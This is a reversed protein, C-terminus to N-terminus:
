PHEIAHSPRRALEIASRNPDIIGAEVTDNTIQVTPRKSTNNIEMFLFYMLGIAGGAMANTLHASNKLDYKLAPGVKSIAGLLTFLIVFLSQRGVAGGTLKNWVDARTVDGVLEYGALGNIIDKGFPVHVSTRLRVDRIGKLGARVGDGAHDFFATLAPYVLADLAEGSANGGSFGAIHGYAKKVSETQAIASTGSYAAGLGELENVAIQNGSYAGLNVLLATLNLGGYHSPRNDYLRFFLNMSDRVLTYTTAKILLPAADGLTGTKVAIGAAAALLAINGAQASRTMWNAEGSTHQKIASLANLMATGAIISASVIVKVHEPAHELSQSALDGIIERIQTSLETIIGERGAAHLINATWGVVAGTATNSLLQRLLGVKQMVVEEVEPAYRASIISPAAPLAQTSAVRLIEPPTGIEAADQAVEHRLTIEPAASIQPAIPTDHAALTISRAAPHISSTATPLKALDTARTSPKGLFMPPLTPVPPAFPYRNDM